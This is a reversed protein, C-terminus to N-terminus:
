EDPIRHGFFYRVGPEFRRSDRGELFREVVAAAALPRLNADEDFFDGCDIGTSAEFHMRLEPIVEDDPDGALLLEHLWEAVGRVSFRRGHLIPISDTGIEDELAGLTRTVLDRFEPDPLTAESIPGPEPELLLSFWTPLAAAATRDDSSLYVDLMIPVTWPLMSRTLIECIYEGIPIDHDVALEPRFADLLDRLLRPPSAHGLLAACDDWLEADRSGKLRGVLRGLPDFAGRQAHALAAAAVIFPNADDLRDAALLDFPPPEAFRFGLGRQLFTRSLFTPEAAM